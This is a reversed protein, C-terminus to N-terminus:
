QSSAAKQMPDARSTVMWTELLDLLSSQHAAQARIKIVCKKQLAGTQYTEFTIMWSSHASGAKQM